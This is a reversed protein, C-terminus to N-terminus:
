GSYRSAGPLGMEQATDAYIGKRTYIDPKYYLTEDVGCKNRLLERVRFVDDKDFYNPTYVVIVHNERNEQKRGYKTSVKAAYIENEKVLGTVCDWVDDIEVPKLFVNWKGTLSTPSDHQHAEEDLGRVTENDSEPVDNATTDKPRLVDHAEFYDQRDGQAHIWYQEEEESPLHIGAM